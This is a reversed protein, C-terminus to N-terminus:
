PNDKVFLPEQPMIPPAFSSIASQFQDLKAKAGADNAEQLHQGHKPAAVM